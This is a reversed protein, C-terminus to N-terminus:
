LADVVPDDPAPENLFRRCCDRDGLELALLEGRVPSGGLANLDNRVAYRDFVELCGVHASEAAGVAECLRREHEEHPPQVLDLPGVEQEVREGANAIGHPPMM